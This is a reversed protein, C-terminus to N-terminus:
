KRKFIVLHYGDPDRLIFERNGWPQDKPKTSPKLGNALLHAHFEDVYICSYARAKAALTVATQLNLRNTKASPLFTSGFGTRTFPQTIQRM